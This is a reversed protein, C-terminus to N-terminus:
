LANHEYHWDFCPNETQLIPNLLQSSWSASSNPLINSFYHNRLFLSELFHLVISALPSKIIYIITPTYVKPNYANIIYCEFWNVKYFQTLIM